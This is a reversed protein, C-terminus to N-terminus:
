KQRGPIIWRGSIYYSILASTDNIIMLKPLFDPV